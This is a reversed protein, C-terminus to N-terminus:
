GEGVWLTFVRVLLFPPRDLRGVTTKKLHM